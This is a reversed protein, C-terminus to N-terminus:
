TSLFIRRLDSGCWETLIDLDNHISRLSGKNMPKDLCEKVSFATYCLSIYRIVQISCSPSCIYM